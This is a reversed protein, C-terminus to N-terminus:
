LWAHFPLSRSIIQLFHTHPACPTRAFAVALKRTAHPRWRDGVELTGLTQTVPTAGNTALAPSSLALLSSVLPARLPLTPHACLPSREPDTGGAPTRPLATCILHATHSAPTSCWHRVCLSPPPTRWLLTPGAPPARPHSAPAILGRSRLLQAAGTRWAGCHVCSLAVLKPHHH